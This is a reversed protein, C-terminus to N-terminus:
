DTVIARALDDLKSVYADADGQIDNALLSFAVRQGFDTTTYGSLARVGGITGTKALVRGKYDALRRRLTGDTGSVPLSERFVAAHPHRDMAALLETLMRATVRNDRSLGSGDAMVLADAGAINHRAFFAKAAREGKDWSTRNALAPDTQREGVIKALAEAMFNQSNKNVRKLVDPLPTEHTALIERTPATTPARLIQGDITVGKSALYTRLADATFRGPDEVPKSPLATKIGCTGSLVYADPDQPDRRIEPRHQNDTVCRNIIRIGATPPVVEYRVPDGAKTPHITVDICNDNFNLGAVPAGYWFERFSKSWSPHTRQDDLARDDYYLNGKVRTLGRSQLAAAFAAFDDLPKRNRATAITPDGLGPDAGGVLYLDDGALALRTQFRHDPGLADLAAASTVLKLNSAPMMPRDIERAYLERGSPLEIVRAAVTARHTAILADLKAVFPRTAPRSAAPEPAPLTATPQTAPDASSCGLALSLLLLPLPTITRPLPLQRRPRTDRPM